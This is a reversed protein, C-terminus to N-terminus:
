LTAAAVRLPWEFTGSTAGADLVLRFEFALDQEFPAGPRHLELGEPPVEPDGDLGKLAIRGAIGAYTEIRLLYGRRDNHRVRYRVAVDKYGVAMDAATITVTAPEELVDLAVSPQVTIGVTVQSSASDAFAPLALSATVLAAAIQKPQLIGSV